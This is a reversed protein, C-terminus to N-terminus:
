VCTLSVAVWCLTPLVRVLPRPAKDTSGLQKVPSVSPAGAVPQRAAVPNRQGGEQQQGRSTASGATAAAGGQLLEMLKTRQSKALSARGAGGTAGAGAGAAKSQATATAATAHPNRPAVLEDLRAKMARTLDESIRWVMICGDAGTTILRRCDHTFTVGTVMESHASVRALRHGTFFDFLRIGKDFSCTAAIIGAPDLAVRNIEQCTADTKYRRCPSMTLTADRSAVTRCSVCSRLPKGNSLNWVNLHKDQGGTVLHRNTADVVMDYITGYPVTVSRFRKVRVVGPRGQVDAGEKISCMVITKDGGCSMLKSDDRAFRHWAGVWGCVCVCVHVRSCGVLVTVARTAYRVGTVSSSHQDLTERLRYGCRADFVHVLRDRSGSALLRGSLPSFDVSMVESEHALVVSSLCM